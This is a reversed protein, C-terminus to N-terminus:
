LKFVSSLVTIASSINEISFDFVGDEPDSHGANRVCQHGRSASNWIQERFNFTHLCRYTQNEKKLIHKM